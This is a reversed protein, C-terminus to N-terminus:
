GLRALLTELAREVRARDGTALLDLHLGRLTAILLTATDNGPLAPRGQKFIDETLDIWQHVIGDLFNHYRDPHRLSAVYAEFFLKFWESSEDASITGWIDRVLDLPDLCSDPNAQTDVVLQVQRDRLVRLAGLVLADRSGLHYLLTRHSVGAAAAMERIGTGALGSAALQTVVADLIRDRTNVKGAVISGIPICRNAPPCGKAAFGTAFPTRDPDSSSSGGGQALFVRNHVFVQRM